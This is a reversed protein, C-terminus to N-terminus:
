VDLMFYMEGKELREKLKEALLSPTVVVTQKEGHSFYRDWVETGEVDSALTLGTEVLM